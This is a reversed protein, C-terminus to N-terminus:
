KCGKSSQRVFVQLPVVSGEAPFHRYAKGFRALSGNRTLQVAEPSPAQEGETAFIGGGLVALGIQGNDYMM